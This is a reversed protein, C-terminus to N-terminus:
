KVQSSVTKPVERQKYTKKSKLVGLALTAIRRALAHRAQHAPAGRQIMDDYYSKLGNNLSTHSVVFAAIKFVKKLRRSYRPQKRGYLKGGSRRDLRVLGCYAWFHGRSKFREAEVVSSVLTVAGVLGIGPIQMVHRIGAHKKSLRTFEETYRKKHTEYVKIQDLLGEEVFRDCPSLTGAGLVGLGKSALLASRQNKLRVGLQILDEYGSVVKRLDILEDGHHFVPKLLESRLLFALKQADIADTKCGDELLRNRHPDCVLLEDVHEKLELYLWQAGTSEEFTLIKKGSLKDLYDKLFRVDSPAEFVEAKARDRSLRAIAMTKKSWDLAIYHAYRYM